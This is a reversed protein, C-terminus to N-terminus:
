QAEAQLEGAGGGENEECEWGMGAKAGAQGEEM